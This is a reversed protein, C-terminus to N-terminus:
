YCSFLLPGLISGQPVERTIPMFVSVADGTKLKQTRDTLYSRFWKASGICMTELRNCLINHYATSFAKQLDLLVMGTYNGRAM